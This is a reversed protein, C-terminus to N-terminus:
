HRPIVTNSSLSLQKYTERLLLKHYPRSLMKFSAAAAAATTTAPRRCSRSSSFLAREFTGALPLAGGTPSFCARRAPETSSRTDRVHPGSPLEVVDATSLVVVVAPRWARPVRLDASGPSSSTRGSRRQDVRAGGPVREPVEPM